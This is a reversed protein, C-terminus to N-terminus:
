DAAGSKADASNANNAKNEEKGVANGTDSSPKIPKGVVYTTYALSLGFMTVIASSDTKCSLAVMGTTCLAFLPVATQFIFAKTEATTRQTVTLVYFVDLAYLFVLSALIWYFSETIRDFVRFIIAILLVVLISLKRIDGPGIQYDKSKQNNDNM